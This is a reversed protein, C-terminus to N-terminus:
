LLFLADHANLTILRGALRHFEVVKNHLVTDVSTEDGIPAGSLVAERRSVHRVSPLVTKIDAVVSDDDTVLECKDENLLGVPPKVCRVTELDRLLSSVVGGLSGNDLYWSNLESTMTRVLKLSSPYFLLPGLPGGQQFGGDSQLLYAVLDLLSSSAYCMYVFAYLAPLEDHEHLLM